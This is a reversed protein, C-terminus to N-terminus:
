LVRALRFGYALRALMGYFSRKVSHECKLMDLKPKDQPAKSVYAYNDPLFYPIFLPYVLQYRVSHLVGKNAVSCGLIV